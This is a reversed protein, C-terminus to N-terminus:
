GEPAVVRHAEPVGIPLSGLASGPFTSRYYHAISPEFWRGGGQRSPIAHTLRPIPPCSFARNPPFVQDAADWRRVTFDATHRDLQAVSTRCVPTPVGQVRWCWSRSRIRTAASAFPWCSRVKQLLGSEM